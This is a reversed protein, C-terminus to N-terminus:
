STLVVKGVQDVEILPYEALRVDIFCTSTVVITNAPDAGFEVTDVDTTSFWIQHWVAGEIPVDPTYGSAVPFSKWAGGAARVELPLAEGNFRFPWYSLKREGRRLQLEAPRVAM